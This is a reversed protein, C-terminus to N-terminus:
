KNNVSSIGKYCINLFKTVVDMQDELKLSKRYAKNVATFYDSMNVDKLVNTGNYVANPTRPTFSFSNNKYVVDATNVATFSRKNERLEVIWRMFSDNAGDASFILNEVDKLRANVDSNKNIKEYFLKNVPYFKDERM